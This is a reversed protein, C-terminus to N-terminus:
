RRQGVHAHYQYWHLLLMVVATTTAVGLLPSGSARGLAVGIAAAFLVPQWLQLSLWAVGVRRDAAPLGSAAAQFSLPVGVSRTM